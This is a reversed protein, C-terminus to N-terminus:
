KETDFIFLWVNFVSGNLYAGAVPEDKFFSVVRPGYTTEGGYGLLNTGFFREFYVDFVFILFVFLWPQLLSYNYRKVFFYNIAIFLIIFRIFGLNRYIGSNPDVSILTNLILYM